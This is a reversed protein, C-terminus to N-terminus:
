GSRPGKEGKQAEIVVSANVSKEVEVNQIYNGEVYDYSVIM